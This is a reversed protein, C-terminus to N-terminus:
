SIAKIWRLVISALYYAGIAIVWGTLITAFESIPLFYNIYGLVEWGIGGTIGQIPGHLPCGWGIRLIEQGQTVGWELDVHNGEAAKIIDLCVQQCQKILEM